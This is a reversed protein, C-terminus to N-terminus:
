SSHPVVRLRAVPGPAAGTEREFRELGDPALAAFGARVRELYDQAVVCLGAQTARRLRARGEPSGVYTWAEGASTMVRERRYNRERADLAPLDADPIEAVAGTVEGEAVPEIDVFVVWVAPREGTEPDEFHKYGPIDETNDMAVGWTRRWGPLSALRAGASAPVLSGYGFVLPV